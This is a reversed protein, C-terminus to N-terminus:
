YKSSQILRLEFHSVTATILFDFVNWGESWFNGFDDLFKLVIESVFLCLFFFDIAELVRRIRQKQEDNGM